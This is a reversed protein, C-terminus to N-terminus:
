EIHLDKKMKVIFDRQANLYVLNQNNVRKSIHISKQNTLYNEQKNLFTTVSSKTISITTSQIQPKHKNSLM